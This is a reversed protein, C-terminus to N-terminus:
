LNTMYKFMTVGTDYTIQDKVNLWQLNKLIPSVHDFKKAKGDAIKAAFNQLKQVNNLLTTNTTGWIVNCYNMISLTLSQIIATRTNKDFFDKIRNVYM